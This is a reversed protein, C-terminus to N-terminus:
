QFNKINDAFTILNENIQPSLKISNRRFKNTFRSLTSIASNLRNHKTNLIVLARQEACELNNTRLDVDTLNFNFNGLFWTNSKLQSHYIWYKMSKFKYDNIDYIWETCTVDKTVDM